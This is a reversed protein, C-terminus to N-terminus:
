PSMPETAVALRKRKQPPVSPWSKLRLQARGWSVWNKLGQIPFTSSEAVFLLDGTTSACTSKKIPTLIKWESTLASPCPKHAATMAYMNYIEGNATKRGHFKKGYWSAKGRQRFAQAHPLPRYWNKGIRYPKPHGPPTPPPGPTSCGFILLLLLCCVAVLFINVLSSIKESKCATM